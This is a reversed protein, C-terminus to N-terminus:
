FSKDPLLLYIQKLIFKILLLDKAIVDDMILRMVLLTIYIYTYRDRLSLLTALYTTRSFDMVHIGCFEVFVVLM